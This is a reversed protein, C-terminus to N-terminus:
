SCYMRLYKNDVFYYGDDGADENSQANASSHRQRLAADLSIIDDDYDYDETDYVWREGTNNDNINENNNHTNARPPHPGRSAPRNLLQLFPATSCDSSDYFSIDVTANWFSYGAYM